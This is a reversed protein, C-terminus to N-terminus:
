LAGAATQVAPEDTAATKAAKAQRGKVRVALVKGGAAAGEEPEYSDLDSRRKLQRAAAAGVQMMGQGLGKAPKHVIWAMLQILLYDTSLLLGGLILSITFIYAGVTAFNLELLGRGAAGFYGGAGIVPGPSLQPVAMEVLTTFGALSILWGALRTVPQSAAAAGPAHRGAHGAFVRPLVRGAGARHAAHPQRLGRLTRLSEAGGRTRSLRAQQAPRGRRLEVAVGGPLGGRLLGLAALDKKLDRHELMPRAYRNGRPEAAFREGASAPRM